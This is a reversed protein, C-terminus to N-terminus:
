GADCERIANVSARLSVTRSDKRECRLLNLGFDALAFVQNM